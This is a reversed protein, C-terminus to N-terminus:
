ETALSANKNTRNAYISLGLNKLKEDQWTISYFSRTMDFLLPERFWQLEGSCWADNSLGLISPNYFLVTGDNAAAYGSGGM